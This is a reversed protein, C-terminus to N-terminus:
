WSFEPPVDPDKNQHRMLTSIGENEGETSACVEHAGSGSLLWAEWIRGDLRLLLLLPLFLKAVIWQRPRM